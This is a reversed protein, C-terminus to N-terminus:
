YTCGNIQSVRVDALQILSPELNSDPVHQPLQRMAALATPSTKVWPIRTSM